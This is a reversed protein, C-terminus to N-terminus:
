NGARVDAAPDPGRRGLEDLRRLVPNAAIAETFSVRESAATLLILGALHVLRGVRGYRLLLAAGVAAGLANAGCDGLMTREGLDAPLLGVGVGVPAAIAAGGPGPVSILPAHLLAFKLCRGPRLDFLNALNAFGAVVAGGLVADLRNRSVLGAAGLGVASLGVAKIAGGTLGGDLSASLHGRLGKAMPRKTECLDDYAGILGAGLVAVVTAARGRAPVGAAGLAGAALGATCAPGALLSVSRGAYNLRDWGAAGGPPHRHLAWLAARAVGAAV